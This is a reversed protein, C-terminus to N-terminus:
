ERVCFNDIAYKFVQALTNDRYYSQIIQAMVPALAGKNEAKKDPSFGQGV